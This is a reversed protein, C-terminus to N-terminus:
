FIGSKYNGCITGGVMTFTGYTNYVGHSDHSGTIYGGSVTIYSGGPASTSVASGYGGSLTIYRTPKVAADDKLTLNGGDGIMIVGDSSATSRIGYGNLDLTVTESITLAATTKICQTLTVTSGNVTSVSKLEAWSSVEIETVGQAWATQATLTMVLTLLAVSLRQLTGRFSLLRLNSTPALKKLKRM